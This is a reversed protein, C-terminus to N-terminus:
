MRKESLSGPKPEAEKEKDELDWLFYEITCVTKAILYILLIVLNLIILIEKM